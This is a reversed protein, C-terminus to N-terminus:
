LRRLFTRCCAELSGRFRTGDPQLELEWLTGDGVFLKRIDASRVGTAGPENSRYHGTLTSVMYDWGRQSLLFGVVTLPRGGQSVLEDFEDIM